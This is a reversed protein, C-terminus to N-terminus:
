VPLEIIFYVKCANKNLLSNSFFRGMATELYMVEMFDKLSAAEISLDM